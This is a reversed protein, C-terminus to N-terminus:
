LGLSWIGDGDCGVEQLKAKLSTPNGMWTFEPGLEEHVLIPFNSFLYIGTYSCFYVQMSQLLWDPSEKQLKLGSKLIKKDNAVANVVNETINCHLGQFNHPRLIRYRENFSISM